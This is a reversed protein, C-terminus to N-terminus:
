REEQDHRLLVEAFLFDELTDIDVSRNRPMVLAYSRPGFFDIRERGPIRSSVLYVAGNLQYYRPLEQRNKGRVEPRLFSELSLDGPLVNSWLPHHGCECVSVVSLADKEAALALADRLDGPARLPSTPQLFFFYDFPGHRETLFAMGHALVDPGSATDTALLPPRPIIEVGPYASAVGAIRESDTSVALVDVVGSALACELTYGILPKGNLPRINKDRLGKSGGRAPVVAAIRSKAM